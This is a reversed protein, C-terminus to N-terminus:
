EFALRLVRPEADGSPEVHFTRVENDFSVALNQPDAANFQGALARVIRAEIDPPTIARSQRTVAVEALGRTDLGFIKHPRVAEIVRAASVNGTQGLDPARFIPVDAVVGANDVLDGIRVIEGTIIAHSKLAPGKEEAHIPPLATPSLAVTQAPVPVAMALSLALSAVLTAIRPTAIRSM